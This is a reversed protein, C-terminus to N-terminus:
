RPVRHRRGPAGSRRAPLKWRMRRMCFQNFDPLWELDVNPHPMYASEGLSNRIRCANASPEHTRGRNRALVSSHEVNIKRVAQTMTKQCGSTRRDPCREP